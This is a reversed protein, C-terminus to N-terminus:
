VIRYLELVRRIHPPFDGSLPEKTKREGELSFSKTGQDQKHIIKIYDLTAMQLDYPVDGDEYGARYKIKLANAYPNFKPPGGLTLSPYSNKVTPYHGTIGVHGINRTIKGSDRAFTFENTTSSSDTFTVDSNAGDCHILLVTDDDTAHQHTPATFAGTYQASRSIRIEDMQGIFINANSPNRGIEVNSTFDPIDVTKAVTTSGVSTGDRYLALSTGNRVVAVHTWTNATYGSVSADAVNTTETGGEVARFQLGETANYRFEWFDNTDTNHNIFTQTSSLSSMRVQVDITFDETDFYFDGQDKVALYNSGDFNASTTGFKKIRKLKTVDGINTIIHNDKNPGTDVDLGTSTPNALFEYDTGNFEAVSYVNNLPLRSSYVATAGGDFVEFYDNALVQQGIYHEVVATAYNLANTLTGDHTNSSISLYDKVQALTVYPYKGLNEEFKEM